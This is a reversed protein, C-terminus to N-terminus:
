RGVSRFDQGCLYVNNILQSFFLVIIKTKKAIVSYRQLTKPKLITRRAKYSVLQYVIFSHIYTM